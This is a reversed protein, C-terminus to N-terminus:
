GTASATCWGPSTDPTPSTACSVTFPAAGDVCPTSRGSLRMVVGAIYRASDCMRLALRMAPASPDAELESRGRDRGCGRLHQGGDM